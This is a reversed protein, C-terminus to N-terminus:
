SGLTSDPSKPLALPRWAQPNDKAWFKRASKRIQVLSRGTALMVAQENLSPVDRSDRDQAAIEGHPFLRSLIRVLVKKM